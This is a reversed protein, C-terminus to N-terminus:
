QPTREKKRAKRKLKLVLCVCRSPVGLCLTDALLIALGSQWCERTWLYASAGGFSPIPAICLVLLTHVRKAEQYHEPESKRRQWAQFRWGLTWLFRAISGTGFHFLATIFIHAAFHNLWAYRHADSVIKRMEKATSDSVLGNAEWKM